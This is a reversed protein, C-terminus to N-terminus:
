AGKYAVAYIIKYDRNIVEPNIPTPSLYTTLDKKIEKPLIQLKGFFLRKLLTKGEMTKPILNFSSAVRKLFSILKDKVSGSDASFGGYMEVKSFYKTLLSNLELASFYKKSFASPHFDRWDKNVTGILLIGRPRLVRYAERIFEEPEELYYIAEYLIVLDFSKDEFELKQADMREVEINSRDKYYNKPFKLVEEDIDVGLVRNAVEALYGLGIGAGCAVELVDRGQAFKFAFTYRQYIRQLQELSVKQGPLETVEFYKSETDM